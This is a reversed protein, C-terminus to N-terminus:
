FVRLGCHPCNMHIVGDWVVDNDPPVDPVDPPEPETSDPAVSKVLYQELQSLVDISFRYQGKAYEWFRWSGKDFYMPMAPVLNTTWNVVFLHVKVPIKVKLHDADDQIGNWIGASTYLVPIVGENAAWGIMNNIDNLHNFKTTDIFSKPKFKYWQNLWQLKQTALDFKGEIM